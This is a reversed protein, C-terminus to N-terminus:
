WTTPSEPLQGSVGTLHQGPAALGNTSAPYPMYPQRGPRDSRKAWARETAEQAKTSKDLNWILGLTVEVPM